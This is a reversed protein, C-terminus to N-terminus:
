HSDTSEKEVETKKTVTGDKKTATKETVTASASDGHENKMKKKWVKKEHKTGTIPNTYGDKTASEKNEADAAFASLNFALLGAALVILKKM